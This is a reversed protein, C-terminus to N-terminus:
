LYTSSLATDSHKGRAGLTGQFVGEYFASDLCIAIRIKQLISNPPLSLTKTPFAGPCFSFHESMSTSLESRHIGLFTACLSIQVPDWTTGNQQQKQGDSQRSDAPEVWLVLSFSVREPM